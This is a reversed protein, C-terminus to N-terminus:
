VAAPLRDGVTPAAGAAMDIDVPAPAPAAAPARDITAAWREGLHAIEVATGVSAIEPDVWAFALFYGTAPEEAASSVYGAVMGDKSVPEGPVVAHLNSDMRLRVLLRHGPRAAGGGAAASLGAEAANDQPGYDAGFAPIGNAIALATVADDGVPAIGHGAGAELLLDWLYLGHETAAYMTWGGVGTTTEAIARVPVGGVDLVPAQSSGPAPLAGRTVSALVAAAKPGILALGTIASSVDSVTVSYLTERRFHWIDEPSSGVVLYADKATRVLTVDAAIGGSPSAVLTPIGENVQLFAVAGTITQLHQAAGDGKVEFVNAAGRDALGVGGAAKRAEASISPSWGYTGWADRAVSLASRDAAGYWRPREWGGQASGFEAKLAEQRAYFPTTAFKRLTNSQKRPHAIDYVEDYNEGSKALSVTRTLHTQDFRRFDLGTTDVGPDGTVIWDTLVGAVGASQTLWVSEGLWLGRIGPVEGLLPNGDPTFSFIGNYGDDPECAKMDPFLHQLAKWGDQLDPWTLPHIAPEVRTQAFEEPSAIEEQEVTIVRHEYSGWLLREGYQRFYSGTAQHRVMPLSVEEEESSGALSQVPSTSSSCHEMPVMPLELGLMKGLGPGWLGACVVVVDAELVSTGEPLREGKSPNGPVPPTPRVDVGTVRGGEIRFGTVQTHGYFKAGNSIARRAQWEVARVAKVVGDTPTHLGGLVVSADLGPFLEACEEPTVLRAPVGWSQALNHRRHLYEMREEDCALELGGVRKLIWQGDLTLGDLKDLTRRALETMVPSGTTQFAFGPAHSSSGGTRYLPGQDVVTVSAMGQRTLDDALAAGVVGAGIILIRTDADIRASAM